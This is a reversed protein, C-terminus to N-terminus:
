GGSTRRPVAMVSMRSNTNSTTVATTWSFWSAGGAGNGPGTDPVGNGVWTAPDGDAHRRGTGGADPRSSPSSIGLAM